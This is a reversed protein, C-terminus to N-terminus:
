SALPTHHTKAPESISTCGQITNQLLRAREGAAANTAVKEDDMCGHQFVGAEGGESTGGGLAADITVAPTGGRNIRKGLANHRQDDRV